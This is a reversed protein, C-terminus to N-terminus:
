PIQRLVRIEIRVMLWGAPTQETSLHLCRAHWVSLQASVTGPWNGLGKNQFPNRRPEFRGNQIGAVPVGTPRRGLNGPGMEPPWFTWHCWQVLPCIPRTGSADAPWRARGSESRRHVPLRLRAMRVTVGGIGSAPLFPSGLPRVADRIPGSECRSLREAHTKRVLNQRKSQSKAADVAPSKTTTGDGVVADWLVAREDCGHKLQLQRTNGIASPLASGWSTAAVLAFHTATKLTQFTKVEKHATAM